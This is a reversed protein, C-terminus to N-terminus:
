TENKVEGFSFVNEDPIFKEPYVNDLFWKFDKCNLKERIARRSSVDGFDKGKLLFLKLTKSYKIYFPKIIIKSKSRTSAHLLTEQLRGDM